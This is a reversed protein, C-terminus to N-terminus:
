AHAVTRKQLPVGPIGVGSCEIRMRDRDMAQHWLVTGDPRACCVRECIRCRVTEPATEVLSRREDVLPARRRAAAAPAAPAVVPRAASQAPAHRAPRRAAAAKKVAARQAEQDRPMPPDPRAPIPRLHTAGAVEVATRWRGKQGWGCSCVAVWGARGVCAAEAPKGARTTRHHCVTGDPHVPVVPYLTCKPM